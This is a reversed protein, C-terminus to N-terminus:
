AAYLQAQLETVAARLQDPGGFLKIIEAVTGHGSIPGNETYASFVGGYVPFWKRLDKVRVLNGKSKKEKSERMATEM